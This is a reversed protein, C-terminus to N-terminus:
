RDISILILRTKMLWKSALVTVEDLQYKYVVRYLYIPFVHQPFITTFLFIIQVFCGNKKNQIIKNLNDCFCVFLCVFLCVYLFFILIKKLAGVPLFHLISITM